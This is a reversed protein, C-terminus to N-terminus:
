PRLAKMYASAVETHRRDLLSQILAAVKDQPTNMWLAEIEDPTYFTIGARTESM